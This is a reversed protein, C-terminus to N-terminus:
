VFLSLQLDEGKFRDEISQITAGYKFGYSCLNPTKGLEVLEYWLDPHEKRFQRMEKVRMNMCFWCGGRTGTDYIPSLLDYKRCLELAMKETYRYKELLSIKYRDKHIRELRKPEDYAIGVYQIM